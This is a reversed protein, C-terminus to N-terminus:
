LNMFVVGLLALAIGLGQILSINENFFLVGAGVVIIAYVATQIIGVISLQGKNVFVYLFVLIQILYLLAVGFMLPNRVAEGFSQANLSIKKLLVDAFAVASCAVAILGLQFLKNM